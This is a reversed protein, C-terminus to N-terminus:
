KGPAADLFKELRWSFVPGNISTWHCTILYLDDIEYQTMYQRISAGVDSTYNTGRLDTQLVRDYYPFLYYLMSFAYSDSIVLASRGTHFGTEFLRYPGKAGGLYMTYGHHRFDYVDSPTRQTLHEILSTRVPSLVLPVMLNERELTMSQLQEPTYPGNKLSYRLYYEYDYFDTPAYGLDALFANSTRWATKVYWHLDGNSYMPGDGRFPELIKVANYIRVGPEVLPQLAEDLDCGWDAFRHADFVPNAVDSAPVNIFFLNGDAPLADRYRDLVRALGALRQPSYEEIVVRKGDAKEQWLSAGRLAAASEEAAPADDSPQAEPAASVTESDPEVAATEEPAEDGLLGQEEEYVRKAEEQADAEGFLSMLADSLAILKERAPVADSLFSEFEDMYGGSLVASAKLEPFAQLARNETESVGGDKPAFFLLFLGLPASALLLIYNEAFRLYKKM